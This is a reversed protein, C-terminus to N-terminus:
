FINTYRLKKYLYSLEFKQNKITFYTYRDSVNASFANYCYYFTPYKRISTKPNFNLM